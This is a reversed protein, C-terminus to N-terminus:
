ATEHSSRRGRGRGRKKAVRGDLLIGADLGLAAAEERWKERLEDAKVTQLEVVRANIAEAMKTCTGYDWTSVVSTDVAQTM